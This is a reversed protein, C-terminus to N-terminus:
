TEYSDATAGASARLAQLSMGVDLITTNSGMKNVYALVDEGGVGANAYTPTPNAYTPTPSAYTSLKTLLLQAQSYKLDIMYHLVPFSGTNLFHHRQNKLKKPGFVM